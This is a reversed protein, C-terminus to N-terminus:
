REISHPRIARQARNREDQWRLIWASARGLTGGVAFGSGAALLLMPLPAAPALFPVHPFALWALGLVMLALVLVEVVTEGVLANM